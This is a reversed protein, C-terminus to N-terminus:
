WDSYVFVILNYKEEDGNNYDIDDARKLKTQQYM